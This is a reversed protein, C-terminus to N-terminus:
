PWGTPCRRQHGALRVQGALGLERVKAEIVPRYLGDGVIPLVADLGEERLQKVAELLYLHGKWSRLVSIIGFVFIGAPLDLRAALGPDPPRPTFEALSVGTPIAHLRERPAGLRQHLLESIGQGTTIVVAPALYLRRTPWNAAVPTSLHRTRLLIVKKGSTLWALLGVWSDLSSHTNLMDVREQKLLRRLNLWADLNDLGGFKLPFVAFGQREARPYLAGRPDCALLLRHGRQRMIKAEALGRHEQGGWGLSSETHLITYTRKATIM